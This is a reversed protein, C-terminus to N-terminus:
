EDDGMREKAWARLQKGFILYIPQGNETEPDLCIGFPFKGQKLGRYMAPKTIKLGVSQLYAIATDVNMTEILQM